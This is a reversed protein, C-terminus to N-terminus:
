IDEQSSQTWDLDRISIVESFIIGVIIAWIIAAIVSALLAKRPIVNDEHPAGPPTGPVIHNAEAQTKVRIPLVVLFVLFWLVTYLVLAGTISM